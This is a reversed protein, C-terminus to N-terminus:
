EELRGIEGQAFSEYFVDGFPVGRWLRLAAELTEVRAGAPEGRARVVLQEFRIADIREPEVRLLYGPVRTQLSSAGLAKRLQAILNQLSTKATSPPREGWLEDILTDTSVVDNARILLLVLLARQKKGGLPAPDGGKDVELPGLVRFELM